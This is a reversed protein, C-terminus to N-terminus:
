RLVKMIEKKRLQYYLEEGKDTVFLRRIKRNKDDYDKRVLNSDELKKVTKVTTTTNTRTIKALDENIIGPNAVIIKLYLYSGNHLGTEKFDINNIISLGRFINGIETLINTLQKRRITELFYDVNVM